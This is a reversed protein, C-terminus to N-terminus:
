TRKPKCNGIVADFRSKEADSLQRWQGKPLDGLSLPGVAIRVLRLVEIGFAEFMRRIHRNKGEDLVVEVWNKEGGGRVLRVSKARLLEGDCNVGRTLKQLLDDDVRANVRVHYMKDVHSEPSTIQAAWESDNTLLLLGESAQDLRGVPGVWSQERPLCSYVTERGQEDSATTVLGRPKNLVLYIKKKPRVKQGDVVIRDRELDVPFEPNRRETGNL